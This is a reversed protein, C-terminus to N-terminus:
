TEWALKLRKTFEPLVETTDIRLGPNPSRHPTLGGLTTGHSTCLVQPTHLPAFCVMASQSDENLGLWRRPWM